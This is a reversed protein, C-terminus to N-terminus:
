EESCVKEYIDLLSCFHFIKNLLPSFNLSSFNIGNILSM